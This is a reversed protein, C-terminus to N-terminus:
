YYYYPTSPYDTYTRQADKCDWARDCDDYDFDQYECTRKFEKLSQLCDTAQEPVFDCDKYYDSQDEFDEIFQDVCEEHDDYSELFESRICSEYADCIAEAYKDNFNDENARPACALLILSLLM